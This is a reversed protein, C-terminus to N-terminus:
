KQAAKDDGIGLPKTVPEDTLWIRVFVTIIGALATGVQAPTIATQSALETVIPIIGLATMAFGLWVIKSKYWAKVDDM